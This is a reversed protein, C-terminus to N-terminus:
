SVDFSMIIACVKITRLTLAKFYRSSCNKMQGKRLLESAYASHSTDVCRVVSSKMCFEVLELTHMTARKDPPANNADAQM